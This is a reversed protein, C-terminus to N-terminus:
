YPNMNRLQKRESGYDITRHQHKCITLPNGQNLGQDYTKICKTHELLLLSQYKYVWEVREM